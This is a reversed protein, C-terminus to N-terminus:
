ARDARDFLVEWGAGDAAESLRRDPQVAVAEGVEHFLYTDNISDGFAIAQSLPLNAAAALTRAADIKTAGYPHRVPPGATFRDARAECLAGLAADAELWQALADALFQPTGSLLVVHDGAAQHARLREVAPAYLAPAVDDAVFDRALTEIDRRRHGSLYAKNKQLVHRGFRPLYRICFWLYAGVGRLGLAGRRWLYRAFRSESSAGPVLTGDIDFLVLRM